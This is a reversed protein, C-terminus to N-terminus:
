HALRTPEIGLLRAANSWRIAERQEPTVDVERLSRLMSTLSGIQHPYDSGAVV